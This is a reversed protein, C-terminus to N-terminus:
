IKPYQEENKIDKIVAASIVPVHTTITTISSPVNIDNIIPASVSALVRKCIMWNLDFARLGETMKDFTIPKQLYYTNGLKINYEIEENMPLVTTIICPVHKTIENNRISKLFELGSVNPLLISLFVIYPLQARDFYAKRFFAYDEAEEVTTVVIIRNTIRHARLENILAEQYKFDSEVLLITYIDSFFPTEQFKRGLEEERRLTIDRMTNSILLKGTSEDVTVFVSIPFEYGTKHLGYVEVPKGILGISQRTKVYHEFGARHGAKFRPPMILSVPKGLMEERTYGYMDAADQNVAVFNGTEDATVIAVLKSRALKEKDHSEQTQEM